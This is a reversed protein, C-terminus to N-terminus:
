HSVRLIKGTEKDIEILAAGGIWGEPPSGTEYM